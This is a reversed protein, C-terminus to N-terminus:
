DSIRTLVAKFAAGLVGVVARMPMSGSMLLSM